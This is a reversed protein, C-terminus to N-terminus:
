LVTLYNICKKLWDLRSKLDFPPWGYRPDGIWVPRHDKIYLRLISYEKHTIVGESKLHVIFTCLGDPHYDIAGVTDLHKHTITLLELISRHKPKSFFNFLNM